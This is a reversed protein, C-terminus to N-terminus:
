NRVFRTLLPEPSTHWRQQLIWFIMIYQSNDAIFTNFDNELQYTRIMYKEVFCSHTMTLTAMAEVQGIFPQHEAGSFAHSPLGSPHSSM